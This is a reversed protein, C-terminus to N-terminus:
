GKEELKKFLAQEKEYELIAREYDRKAREMRDQTRRLRKEKKEKFVYDTCEKSNFNEVTLYFKEYLGYYGTGLDKVGKFSDKIARTSVKSLYQKKSGVYYTATSNMYVVPFKECHVTRDKSSYIKYIHKIKSLNEKDM